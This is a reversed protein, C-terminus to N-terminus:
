QVQFASMLMLEGSAFVKAAPTFARRKEKLCCPERHSKTCSSNKHLKQAFGGSRKVVEIISPKLEPRKAIARVVDYFHLDYAFFPANRIEYLDNGLQKAWLCEGGITENDPLVVHIKVLEENNDM